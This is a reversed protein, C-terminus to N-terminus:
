FAHDISFNEKEVPHHLNFIENLKDLNVPYVKEHKCNSNVPEGTDECMEVDKINNPRKFESWGFGSIKGSIESMMKGWIPTCATGGYQFGGSLKRQPNDFGIWIATSLKPNYGVFWADTFNQTTGTKGAATGKFYRRVSSATGGNVVTELATTTLYATASDLVTSTDIGSKSYIVRGNKDEIKIISGGIPPAYLGEDAFVAMSSAMELPSVEGTGLAISPLSPINSQIGLRHAFAVVSDPITLHTIAYAASLNISHQIAYEMPVPHNSYSDDDNQPRWEYATGSDVVIPSDSLPEALTYGKELLSGYLFPKFSSGPQRLIQVARNLGGPDANPNGGIMARIMGTGPEVSVLGLQADQMQKPFNKWQSAVADEAAKQMNYNLTTTIKLEDRNLSLGKQSLIEVAEKRVNELFFKGFKDNLNLDLPTKILKEYDSESLKNVEVLNHLVVNRRALMRGPHRIPDYGGPSQVMGVLAASETISLQDPTKDFYEEAAAWIGYAGRGFYVTNLYMLLIEDKTYKEELKRALEIEKLKRSITREDTLFLNRALQMTLTSGGQIHGTLTKFIGRIIGKISVGNHNYFDRDETAILSWIVYKSIYGTSRADIRNKDGYFGILHGDSTVAYSSYQLNIPPLDQPFIIKGNFLLVLIVVPFFKITLHNFYKNLKM